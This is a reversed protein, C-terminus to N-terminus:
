GYPGDRREKSVRRAANAFDLTLDEDLHRLRELESLGVGARHELFHLRRYSFNLPM